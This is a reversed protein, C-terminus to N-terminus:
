LPWELDAEPQYDGRLRQNAIADRISEDISFLAAKIRLSAESFDLIEEIESQSIDGIEGDSLMCVRNAVWAYLQSDLIRLQHLLDEQLIQLKLCAGPRKSELNM